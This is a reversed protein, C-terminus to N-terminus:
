FDGYSVQWCPLGIDQRWTDVVKSRDDLVLLVDYKPAVLSFYIEKKVITDARFDGARRMFLDDSPVGYKEIWARTKGEVKNERGSVMVISYGANKMARIVEIVPRNPLDTDCKHYEFPSRGNHICLTGDLDIILAKKRESM